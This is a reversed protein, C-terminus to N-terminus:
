TLSFLHPQKLRQAVRAQGAEFFPPHQEMCIWQRETDIAAIATTAVGCTPDLVIDGPNSYTLILYVFLALPKQTPHDNDSNGNPVLIISSPFRDSKNVVAQRNLVAKSQNLVPAKRKGSNRTYSQGRRMQPNYTFDTSPSFVIVNEHHKLPRNAVQIFNAAVTKQWIWEVRFWPRNSMVMVSTFPQSATLVVTGTVPNLIRTWRLWLEEPPILKDWAQSTTEYPLDALIMNVSGPELEDMLDLCNGLHIQNLM